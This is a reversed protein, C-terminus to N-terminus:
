LVSVGVQVGYGAVLVCVGVGVLVPVCVGVSVGRSVFVGVFVAVRM